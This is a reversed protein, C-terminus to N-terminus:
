YIKTSLEDSIQKLYNGYKDLIKNTVQVSPISVGIGGVFNNNIDKVSTAISTRYIDAEQDSIAYGRKRTIELEENLKNLDIISNKTMKELKIKSYLNDIEEDTLNSLYAKGVSSCNLPYIRGIESHIRLVGSADIKEVLVVKNNEVISFATFHSTFNSIEGLYPGIIMRTKMKSLIRNTLIIFKSSLSYEANISKNVYGLNYLTNIIRYVSSKDLRSLRSIESIGVFMKNNNAITEIVKIAKEVSNNYFQSARKENM